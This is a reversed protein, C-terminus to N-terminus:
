EGTRLMGPGVKAPPVPEAQVTLPLEAPVVGVAAKGLPPVGSGLGEGLGDGNREGVLRRGAADAVLADVFDDPVAPAKRKGLFERSSPGKEM